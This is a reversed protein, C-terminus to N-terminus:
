IKLTQIKYHQALLGIQPKMKQLPIVYVDVAANDHLLRWDKAEYNLLANKM